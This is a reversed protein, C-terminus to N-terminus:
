WQRRDRCARERLRGVRRGSGPCRGPQHHLGTPNEFRVRHLFRMVEYPGGLPVQRIVYDGEYNTVTATTFGTAANTLTVTAGILTEGTQGSVTGGITANTAQAGINSVGLLACYLLVIRPYLFTGNMTRRNIKAFRGAQNLGWINCKLM